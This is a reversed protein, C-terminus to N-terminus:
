QEPAADPSADADETDPNENEEGDQRERAELDRAKAKLAELKIARREEDTRAFRIAQEANAENVDGIKMAKNELLVGGAAFQDATQTRNM